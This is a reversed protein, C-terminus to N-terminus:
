NHKPYFLAKIKWSILTFGGMFIMKMDNFSRIHTLYALIVRPQLYFSWFGKKNWKILDEKTLGHPVFVPEQFVSMSKWDKNFTGYQEAIQYLESGPFPVMFQTKFDDIKIKKNFNITEKITEITELPHGIINFGITRIGAKRTLKVASEIKELTVKKKEFDHIKQSGTEIGFAISWCGAKKMLALNESDISDVRALCSWTVKINEKRLLDCIERLRKKNVIFNDDAIRFHLIGYKFHLTKIMDKVYEASHFRVKNGFIKRDCYICQYPCGRSTIITVTKGSHMTWPPAFFHKNINPLLDWAPLPLSDMDVISRLPNTVSINGADRYIIGNVDSLKKSNKEELSDLLDIITDEGEGIVGIDFSPFREMTERPVATIHAGGLITVIDPRISKLKSAFDFAGYIDISCATIGVYKPSKKAIESALDNNNLKLPLADIIEVNYKHQRAVAALWCLGNSIEVYGFKSLYGFEEDLSHYIRTFIIDVM